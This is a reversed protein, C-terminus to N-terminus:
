IVRRVQSVPGCFSVSTIGIGYRENIAHVVQGGGIYMAYHGPYVIIDGPRAQSLPVSIGRSMWAFRPINYGCDNLVRYIFGSCDAGNTLSTGGYVYPNGVFQCAYSVVASGGVGRPPTYSRAAENRSYSSGSNSKGIGERQNVDESVKTGKIVVKKVSKKKVKSSLEKSKVVNGDVITNRVKVEKLGNKGETEVKTEGEDMSDDEKEVTDYPIVEDKVDEQVLTVKVMPKKNKLVIEDGPMISDDESMKNDKLLKDVSTHNQEAIAWITDGDKVVINQAKIGGTLIKNAVKSSNTELKIEERNKNYTSPEITLAPETKVSVVKGNGTAYHNKVKEIVSKAKNATSVKAVVKNGVKVKYYDITAADASVTSAAVSTGLVMTVIIGVVILSSKKSRIWEQVKM